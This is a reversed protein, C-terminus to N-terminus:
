LGLHAARLETALDIDAVIDVRAHAQRGYAFLVIEGPTGEVRASPTGLRATIEKDGWALVVGSPARRCLAHSM